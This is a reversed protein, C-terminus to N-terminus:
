CHTTSLGPSSPINKASGTSDVCFSQPAVPLPGVGGAVPKYFLAAAAAWATPSEMCKIQYNGTTRNVSSCFGTYNNHDIFYLEASSRFGSLATSISNNCSKIVSDLIVGSYSSLSLCQSPIQIKPFGTTVAALTDNTSSPALASQNNANNFYYIAGAIVIIGIILIVALAGFGRQTHSNKMGYTYRM